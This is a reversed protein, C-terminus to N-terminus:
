ALECPCESIVSIFEATRHVIDEVPTSTSIVAEFMVQLQRSVKVYDPMSPRVRGFAIMEAVGDWPM